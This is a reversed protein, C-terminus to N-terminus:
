ATPACSTRTSTSRTNSRSAASPPSRPWAPSATSSTASTGIRSPACSPGLGPRRRRGHVLLDPGPGHRRPGSLAGRGAAPVHQRDLATGAGAARAFYFDINDEFIINIMSFNFESSSRVAKVGALGQLNVSLPYTIQDEIEKPSRGMWDTFVIVQNERSRPDRRGAHQLRFTSAKPRPGLTVTSARSRTRSGSSTLLKLEGTDIVSIEPVALVGDRNEEQSRFPELQAIPQKLKLTAFMGPLLEHNANDIECRIRLTRTATEFHPHVLALTDQFVRGPLGDVSAEVAEGSQISVADKEYVDGEIWVASLDAVEFLMQGAEVKDGEVVNKRFIPGGRPARIVLRAQAQGSRLMGDIEEDAIGLLALKKSTLDVLQANGGRKAILLEEAASYLQPSYVEALPQGKEVMTFSRSVDLKEVYGSVRIVIRSLRSEDIAVFGVVRLDRTLPRRVIETTQVGALHIRYPSMQVRSLVGEPLNEAVGKARKSMPMGCIPCKPTVGGPDARDRTVNPHMPCYFEQGAPLATDQGAAPRTWKDWYNRITDWGGIVLGIGVLVAIFRLRIEVARIAFRVRQWTTMGTETGPQVQSM